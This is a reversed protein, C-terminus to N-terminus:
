NNGKINYKRAILVSLVNRRQQSILERSTSIAQEITDLSKIREELEDVNLGSSPDESLTDILNLIEKNLTEIISEM